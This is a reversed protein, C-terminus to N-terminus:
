LEIENGEDRLDPPLPADPKRRIIIDGNPLREPAEYNRMDDIMGLLAELAPRAEESMGELGKQMEDLAPGMQDILGRFLLKAGEELLSFGEEVDGTPADSDGQQATIPGASLCLVLPIVLFQRMTIIYVRKWRKILPNM